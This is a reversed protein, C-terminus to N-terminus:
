FVKLFRVSVELLGDSLSVSKFDLKFYSSSSTMMLDSEHQKLGTHSLLHQSFENIQKNMWEIKENIKIRKDM